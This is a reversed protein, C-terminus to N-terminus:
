RISTNGYSLGGTPDFYKFIIQCWIDWINALLTPVLYIHMSSWSQRKQAKRPKLLEQLSLALQSAPIKSSRPETEPPLAADCFFVIQEMFHQYLISPLWFARCWVRCSEQGRFINPFRNPKVTLVDLKQSEWPRSLGGVGRERQRDWYNLWAAKWEEWWSIFNFSTKKQRVWSLAEMQQSASLKEYDPNSPFRTINRLCSGRDAPSWFFSDFHPLIPTPSQIYNLKWSCVFEM